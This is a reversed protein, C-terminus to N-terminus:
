KKSRVAFVRRASSLTLPTLAKEGADYNFTWAESAFLPKEGSWIFHSSGKLLPTMNRTGRGQLYLTRLEEIKPLRWGGGDVTLSESWSRAEKWAIDRDPGVM